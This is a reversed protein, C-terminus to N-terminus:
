GMAENVVTKRVIKRQKIEEIAAELKSLLYLLRIFGKQQRTSAQDESCNLINARSWFHNKKESRENTSLRHVSRGREQEEKKEYMSVYGFYIEHMGVKHQHDALRNNRLAFPAM